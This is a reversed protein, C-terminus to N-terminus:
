EIFARNLQIVEIKIPNKESISKLCEDMHEKITAHYKIEDNFEIIESKINAQTLAQQMLIALTSKGTGCYGKIRIEIIPSEKNM